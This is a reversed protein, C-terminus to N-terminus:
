FLLMSINECERPVERFNNLIEFMSYQWRATVPMFKNEVGISNIFIVLKISFEM